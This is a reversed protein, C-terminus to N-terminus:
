AVIRGSEQLSWMSAGIAAIVSSDGTWLSGQRVRLLEGCPLSSCALELHDSLRECLSPLRAGAGVVRVPKQECDPAFRSAYTLSRGVESAVFEAHESIARAVAATLTKMRGDLEEGDPARDGAALADIAGDAAEISLNAREKLTTYIRHVGLEPLARHYVVKGEESMVVVDMAHSNLSVIARHDLGTGAAKAVALAEPVIARVALGSADFAATLAEGAAHTATAAIYSEAGSRARNQSKPLEWLSIEFTGAELKQLRSLEMGAIQELPAGSSRPPLEMATLTAFGAPAAIAVQGANMGQLMMAQRLRSVEAPTLAAATEAKGTRDLRVAGALAWGDKARTVQAAHITRADFCVGVPNSLATTLISSTTRM